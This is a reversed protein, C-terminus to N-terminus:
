LAARGLPRGYAELPPGHMETVTLNLALFFLSPLVWLILSISLMQMRSGRERMQSVSLQDRNSAIRHAHAAVDLSSAHRHGGGLILGGFHRNSPTRLHGPWLSRCAPAYWGGRRSGHWPERDRSLDRRRSMALCPPPVLRM